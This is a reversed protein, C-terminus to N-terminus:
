RILPLPNIRQATSIPETKEAVSIVTPSHGVAEVSFNVADGPNLTRAEPHRLIAPPDIVPIEPPVSEDTKTEKEPAPEASLPHGLTDQPEEEAKEAIVPETATETEAVPSDTLDTFEPDASDPSHSIEASPPNNPEPPLSVILKAGNTIDNSFENRVECSYIGDDETTM